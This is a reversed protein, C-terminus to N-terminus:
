KEDETRYSRVEDIRMQKHGKTATAGCLSSWLRQFMNKSALVEHPHMGEEFITVPVLFKVTSYIFAPVAIAALFIAWYAAYSDLNMSDDCYKHLELDSNRWTNSFFPNFNVSSMAIKLCGVSFGGNVLVLVAGAGFLRLYYQMDSLSFDEAFAPELAAKFARGFTKRLTIIEFVVVNSEVVIIVIGVVLVNLFLMAPLKMGNCHVGFKGLDLSVNCLLLLLNTFPSLLTHIWLGQMAVALELVITSLLTGIPVDIGERYFGKYILLSDFMIQLISLLFHFLTGASLILFSLVLFLGVKKPNEGHTALARQKEQEALYKKNHLYQDYLTHVVRCYTAMRELLHRRYFALQHFRGNIVYQFMFYFAAM